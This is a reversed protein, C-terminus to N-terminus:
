LNFAQPNNTVFNMIRLRALQLQFTFVYCEWLFPLYLLIIRKHPSTSWYCSDLELLDHTRIEYTTILTRKHVEHLQTCACPLFYDCSSWFEFWHGEVSKYTSVVLQALYLHIISFTPRGPTLGLAKRKSLPCEVLQAPYLYITFFLWNVNWQTAQYSLQYHRSQLHFARLELRLCAVM